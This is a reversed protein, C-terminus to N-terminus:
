APLWFGGVFHLALPARPQILDAADGIARHDVYLFDSGVPM